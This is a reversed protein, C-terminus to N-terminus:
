CPNESLRVLEAGLSDGLDASRIRIPFHDIGFLRLFMTPKEAEVGMSMAFSTGSARVTPPETVRIRELQDEWRGTNARYASYAARVAAGPEREAARCSGAVVRAKQCIISAPKRLRQDCQDPYAKWFPQGRYRYPAWIEEEWDPGVTTDAPTIRWGADVVRCEGEKCERREVWEYLKRKLEVKMRYEAQRVGAAVGAEVATRVQHQYIYALAFDISIALFAMIAGWAALLLISSSGRQQMLLPDNGGGGSAPNGQGRLM